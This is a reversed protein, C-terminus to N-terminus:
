PGHVTGQKQEWCGTKAEPEESTAPPAKKDKQIKQGSNIGTAGETGYLKEM